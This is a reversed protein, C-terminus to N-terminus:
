CPLKVTITLSQEDSTDATIRGKHAATIAAAISLGLGYGGTESNRSRDCRYFRDFLRSTEDKSIHEATNFVSFKVFGKQKELTM